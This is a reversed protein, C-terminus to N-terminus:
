PRPESFRDTVANANQISGSAVRSSVWRVFASQIGLFLFAFALASMMSQASGHMWEYTVLAALLPVGCFCLLPWTIREPHRIMTYVMGGSLFIGILVSKASWAEDGSLSSYGAAAVIGAAVALWQRLAKVTILM